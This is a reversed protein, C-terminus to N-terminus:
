EQARTCDPEPYCFLRNPIRVEIRPNKSDIAKSIHIVQIQEDDKWVIGSLSDLLIKNYNDIDHKRKDKFFLNVYVEVDGELPERKWQSKALLRYGNKLKAGEATIYGHPFGFKCHYRYMHNTSQPLGPLTILVSDQEIGWVM